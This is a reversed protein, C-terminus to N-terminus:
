RLQLIAKELSQFFAHILCGSDIQFSSLFNPYKIFPICCYPMGPVGPRHIMLGLGFGLISLSSTDVYLDATPVRSNKSFCLQGHRTFGRHSNNFTKSQGISTANLSNFHTILNIRLVQSYPSLTSSIILSFLSQSIVINKSLSKAPSTSVWTLM